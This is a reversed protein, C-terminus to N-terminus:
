NWGLADLAMQIGPQIAGDAEFVDCLEHAVAFGMVWHITAEPSGSFLLVGKQSVKCTDGDRTLRLRHRLIAIITTQNMTGAKGPQKGSYIPLFWGSAM